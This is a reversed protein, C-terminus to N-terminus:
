WGLRLAFRMARQEVGERGTSIIGLAQMFTGSSVSNVPNSHHPTNGINFMEGHFTIELREHIPFRRQVGLDANVLGPGFLSNTGCTGFRGSAPVAFASKSYFQYINGTKQPTSICDAFQSSNPSNLTSNSAAPTFPLGTRAMFVTSIQWGGALKSPIGNHAWRKNKGFPLEAVGTASFSRAIDTAQLGRNLHYYQPIAVYPTLPYGLAKAFTYAASIQVGSLHGQLRMQLADYTNTGMTGLLVTSATRGTLQNLVQGATGGNLPAWNMQLDDQPDVARTAVYGASVLWRKLRQEVTSNWMQIYGRVYDTNDYTTVGAISPVAVTGTSIDPATVAPLGQRLTTAYSLTNAPLLLQAYLYPFNTRSSLTKGTFFNPDATMSYGVRIVTSGTLRYAIGLRPGLRHKDKVIGCDSPISGVGCISMTASRTNYFEMGTGRRQPFPFYDFRLGVSVTLKPAVQWRDRVYVGFSRNSTYYEDPFQYVKGSDQAFGLLFSAFANFDNGAAGGQLQTTGQAFHFGGANTIYGSAGNVQPQSENSDQLDIDFGARVNHTGKVWNISGNYNREPDRYYEPQSTNVIGLTAFGDVTLTPMGGQELQKNLPLSSTNLGPVKLLTWGLNQDGNVQASTVDNRDYGFYADVFLNSSFFYSASITGNFVHAFGPGLATNTPSVQPGGLLGFIQVNNWSADNFGFRVFMSLKSNPNWNLKADWQNRQLGTNGQCGSCLFDQGLGFAGTGHQNPNPYNGTDLLAQVGSDIRSSPIINGPFPSRGGGTATGTTPDYIATPSASLNGSKMAATPVQAAVVNGQVLRTGEYSVFYFLKDKKIPGGITGGFQNSIYPLKPLARNAIWQYAALGKDAHYEFLSGHIANTGNKVTVNAYGGGASQDADFSNTAMNVTEIAELAPIYQICDTASFNRTPAGDVRTDNTHVSGGNVTFSLSRTSNAGYSHSDQPQSVGPITIFLMQYNRGIPVPLNSLTQGSIESRVDARDAQLAAAEAVVTVSENVGGVTLAMDVRTVTQPTVAVGTHTFSRFGESSITVNYAGPPMDPLVYAGASNTVGERVFGTAQDTAVVKAGVVAAGSPDVVNGNITGQLAQARAMDPALLALGVLLGWWVTTLAVSGLLSLSKM